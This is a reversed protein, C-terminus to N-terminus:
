SNLFIGTQHYFFCDHDKPIRYHVRWKVNDFAVIIEYNVARLRNLPVDFCFMGVTANKAQSMVTDFTLKLEPNRASEFILSKSLRRM